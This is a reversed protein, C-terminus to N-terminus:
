LSLYLYDVDIWKSLYKSIGRKNYIEPNDQITESVKTFMDVACPYNHENLLLIGSKFYSNNSQSFVPKILLLMLITLYELVQIVRM